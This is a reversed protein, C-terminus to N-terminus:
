PILASLLLLSLSLSPWGLLPFALGKFSFCAFPPSVLLVEVSSLRLRVFVEAVDGVFFSSFSLFPSCNTFAAAAPSTSFIRFNTDFPIATFVRLISPLLARRLAHLDPCASRTRTKTESSPALTFPFLPWFPSVAKCTAQLFLRDSITFNRTSDPASVVNLFLLFANAISENFLFFGLKASHNFFLASIGSASFTFRSSGPSIKTFAASASSTRVM